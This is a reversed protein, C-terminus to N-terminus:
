TVGHALSSFTLKQTPVITPLYKDHTLHHPFLRRLAISQWHTCEIKKREEYTCRSSKRKVSFLSFSSLFFVCFICSVIVIIIKIHTAKGCVSSIGVIPCYGFNPHFFFCATCIFRVCECTIVIHSSHTNHTVLPLLGVIVLSQHLKKHTHRVKPTHTSMM